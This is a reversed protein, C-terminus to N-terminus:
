RGNNIQENAEGVAIAIANHLTRPSVADLSMFTVGAPLDEFGDPGTMGAADALKALMEGRTILGDAAHRVADLVKRADEHNWGDLVENADMDNETEAILVM